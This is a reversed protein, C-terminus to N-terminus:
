KKKEAEILAGLFDDFPDPDPEPLFRVCNLGVVSRIRGDKSVIATQVGDDANASVMGPNARLEDESVRVLDYHSCVPGVNIKPSEM